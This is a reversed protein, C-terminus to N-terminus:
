LSTKVKDWPKIQWYINGTCIHNQHEDHIKVQCNVTVADQQQLPLLVQEEVWKQDTSFSAIAATRKAQYFYEMEIKQMIIRYKKVELRTLLRFGTTFEALTALACAHLGKIHNLNRKKFPLICEVSDDDYHTIRYKHPKNFPIMRPLLQNLLWLYFPSSKAKTFIKETKFM